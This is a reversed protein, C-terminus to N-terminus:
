AQVDVPTRGLAVVTTLAAAFKERAEHATALFHRCNELRSKVVLNGAAIGEAGHVYARQPAAIEHECALVLADMCDINKSLTKRTDLAELAELALMLRAKGAAIKLTLKHPM